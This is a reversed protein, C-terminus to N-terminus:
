AAEKERRRRKTEPPGQNKELDAECLDAGDGHKRKMDAEGPKATDAGGNGVSSAPPMSSQGADQGGPRQRHRTDRVAGAFRAAFTDYPLFEIRQQHIDMTTGPPPRKRPEDLKALFAPTVDAAFVDLYDGEHM